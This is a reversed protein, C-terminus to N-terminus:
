LHLNQRGGAIHRDNNQLASIRDEEWQTLTKTLPLTDKGWETVTLLKTLNLNQIGGHTQWHKQLTSLRDSSLSLTHVTSNPKEDKKKEGQNHTKDEKKKKKRKLFNLHLNQWIILFFFLHQCQCIFVLRCCQLLHNSQDRQQHLLRSASVLLQVQGLLVVHGDHTPALYSACHSSPATPPPPTGVGQQGMVVCGDHAPALYPM